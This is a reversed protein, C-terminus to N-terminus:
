CKVMTLNRPMMNSSSPKNNAKYRKKKPRGLDRRMVLPNIPERKATPWPIPGNSPQVIYLYTEMFSTKKNM